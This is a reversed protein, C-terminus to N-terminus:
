EGREAQATSTFVFQHFLRGVVVLLQQLLLVFNDEEIIGVRIIQKYLRRVEKSKLWQALMMMTFVKYPLILLSM